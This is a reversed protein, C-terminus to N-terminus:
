DDQLSVNVSFGGSGFEATGISPQKPTADSGRTVKIVFKQNGSGDGDQDATYVGSFSTSAGVAVKDIPAPMVGAGSALNDGSFDTSAITFTSGTWNTVAILKRVGSVLTARIFGGTKPMWTPIAQNVTISTVTAGTYLTSSTLRDFDPEQDGVADVSTGDWPYVTVINGIPTNVAGDRNTPPQQNAGLLDIFLDNEDSDDVNTTIGINAPNFASGTFTGVLNNIILRSTPNGTILGTAGTWAINANDLPVDGTLKQCYAVGETGSTYNVALVLATGTSNGSFTLVSGAVMDTGSETDFNLTLDNGVILQANIGLVTESTGRRQVWKFRQHTEKDDRAGREITMWYPQAGNGNQHDILQYNYTPVIDTWTAVTADATIDNGDDTAVLSVPTIGGSLTPDPATFYNRFRELARFRVVRRDIVTGANNVKILINIRSASDPMYANKWYETATASYLAGNAIIVPQTLGDVDVVAISVANFETNNAQKVSGGYMHYSVEDSINANGLLEVDTVGVRKSIRPKTRDQEDNGTLTADDGLDQFFYHINNPTYVRVHIAGNVNATTDKVGNAHTATNVVVITSNDTPTLTAVLRVFLEGTTGADTVAIIEADYKGSGGFGLYDGVAFQQTGAETDYKFSHTTGLAPAGTTWAIASTTSSYEIDDRVKLPFRSTFPTGDVNATATGNTIADNDAPATSAGILAIYLEGTTGTLTRAIVLEGTKSGTDWSITDGESFTGGALTDYNLKYDM